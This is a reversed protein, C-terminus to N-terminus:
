GISCKKAANSADGAAAAPSSATQSSGDEIYTVLFFAYAFLHSPKIFTMLGHYGAMKVEDIFQKLDAHM